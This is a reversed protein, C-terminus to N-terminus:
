SLCFICVVPVRLCGFNNGDVVPAVIKIEWVSKQARTIIACECVSYKSDMTMPKCSIAWKTEVFACPQITQLGQVQGTVFFFSFFFPLLGQLDLNMSVNIKVTTNQM